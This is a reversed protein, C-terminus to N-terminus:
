EEAKAGPKVRLLQERITRLLENPDCPKEIIGDIGLDEIKLHNEKDTLGSTALVKVDPDLLHLARILTVGGMIPM